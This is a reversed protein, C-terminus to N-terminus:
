VEGEPAFIEVLDRFNEEAQVEPDEDGSDSDVDDALEDEDEPPRYQQSDLTDFNTVQGGDPEMEQAKKIVVAQGTRYPPIQETGIVNGM